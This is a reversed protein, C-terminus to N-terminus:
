TLFLAVPTPGAHIALFEDDNSIEVIGDLSEYKEGTGLNELIYSDLQQVDISAAKGAAGLIQEVTLTADTTVQQEGNVKYHIKISDEPKSDQDPKETTSHNAM